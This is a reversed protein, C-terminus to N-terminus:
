KLDIGKILLQFEENRKNGILFAIQAITESNFNGIALKRGRLAPYMEKLPIVITQWKDNTSFPYIYSHANNIKDKVRFQYDKGDGKVELVISTFNAIEITEFAYQLSSFGGNNELSVNGYFKGAGKEDLDFKGSSVGGMVVDDVVKWNGINSEKSFEFVPYKNQTIHMAIIIYFIRM